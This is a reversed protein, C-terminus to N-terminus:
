EPAFPANPSADAIRMSTAEGHLSLTWGDQTLFAVLNGTRAVYRARADTQGRNEESYLPVRGFDHSVKATNQGTSQGSVAMGALLGLSLLGTGRSFHAM